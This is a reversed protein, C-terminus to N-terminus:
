HRQRRTMNKGKLHGEDETKNLDVVEKGEAQLELVLTSTLSAASSLSFLFLIRVRM